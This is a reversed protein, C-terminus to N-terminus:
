VNKNSKRTCLPSATDFESHGRFLTCLGAARGSRALKHSGANDQHSDQWAPAAFHQQLWLPGCLDGREQPGEQAGCSPM